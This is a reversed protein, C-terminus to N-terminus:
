RWRGDVWYWGHRDRKWRGPEWTNFGPAIEIWVGPVWIYERVEWRWHGPRWVYRLSPRALLVETRPVPPEISVYIVGPMPGALYYCGSAAGLLAAVAATRM